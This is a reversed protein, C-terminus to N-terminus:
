PKPRRKRKLARRLVAVNRGNRAAAVLERARAVLAMAREVTPELTRRPKGMAPLLARASNVAAATGPVISFSMFCM